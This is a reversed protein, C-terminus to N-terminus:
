CKHSSIQATDHLVAQREPIILRRMQHLSWYPICSHNFIVNDSIVQFFFLNSYRSLMSGHNRCFSASKLVIPIRIVAIGNELEPTMSVNAKTIRM